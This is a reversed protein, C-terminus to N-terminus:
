NFYGIFTVVNYDLNDYNLDCASPLFGFGVGSSAPLSAFGAFGFELFNVKVLTIFNNCLYALFNFFAFACTPFSRWIM